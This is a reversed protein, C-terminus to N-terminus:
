TVFVSRGGGRHCLTVFMMRERNMATEAREKEDFFSLRGVNCEWATVLQPSWSTGCCRRSQELGSLLAFRRLM